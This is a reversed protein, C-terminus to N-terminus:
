PFTQFRLTSILFTRLDIVILFGYVVFHLMRKIESYISKKGLSIRWATKLMRKVITYENTIVDMNIMIKQRVPMKAGKANNAKAQSTSPLLFYTSIANM